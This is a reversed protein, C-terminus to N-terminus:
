KILRSALALVGFLAFVCGLAKLVDPIDGAAHDSASDAVPEPPEPEAQDREGLNYIATRYAAASAALSSHRAPEPIETYEIRMATLFEQDFEQDFKQDTM